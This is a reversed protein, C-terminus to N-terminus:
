KQKRLSQRVRCTIINSILKQLMVKVVLNKTVPYETQTSVQLSGLTRRPEVAIGTGSSFPPCVPTPSTPPRQGTGLVEAM